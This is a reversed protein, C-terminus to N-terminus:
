CIHISPLIACAQRADAGANMPPGAHQIAAADAIMPPGAHQIAAADTILQWGFRTVGICRGGHWHYGGM